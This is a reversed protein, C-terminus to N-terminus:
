PAVEEKKVGGPGTGPDRHVLEIFHGITSRMDIYAVAVGEVDMLMPVAFGAEQADRVSREWADHSPLLYGLHHFFVTRGDDWPQDLYISGPWPDRPEILEIETGGLDFHSLNQLATPGGDAGRVDEFRSVQRAGLASVLFETGQEISRTVYSVQFHEGLEIPM